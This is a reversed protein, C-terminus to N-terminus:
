GKFMLVGPSTKTAGALINLLLAVWIKFLSMYEFKCKYLWVIVTNTIAM